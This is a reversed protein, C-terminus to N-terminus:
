DAFAVRDMPCRLTDEVKLPMRDTAPSPDMESIKMATLVLWRRRPAPTWLWPPVVVFFFNTSTLLNSSRAKENRVLREVM